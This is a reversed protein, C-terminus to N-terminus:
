AKYIKNDYIVMVFGAFFIVMDFVLAWRFPIAIKTDHHDKQAPYLDVWNGGPDNKMPTTATAPLDPLPAAAPVTPRPPDGQRIVIEMGKLSGLFGLGEKYGDSLIFSIVAICLSMIILSYGARKM